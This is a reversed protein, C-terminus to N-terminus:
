LDHSKNFDSLYKLTERGGGVTLSGNRPHDRIESM